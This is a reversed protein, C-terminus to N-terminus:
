FSWTVNCKTWFDVSDPLPYYVSKIKLFEILKRGFGRRQARSHVWLIIAEDNEKVCLCPLLYWSNKIDACFIDDLYARRDYMPATVVARLGYLNGKKHAELIATRNRIFVSEDDYLEDILCWFEASDDIVTLEVGDWDTMTKIVLTKILINIIPPDL